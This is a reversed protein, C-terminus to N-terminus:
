ECAGVAAQPLYHVGPEPWSADTCQSQEVTMSSWDFEDIVGNALGVCPGDPDLYWETLGDVDLDASEFPTVNTLLTTPAGLLTNTKTCSYAGQINTGFITDPYVVCHQMIMDTGAPAYLASGSPAVNNTFTSGIFDGRGYVAGGVTTATNAVFESNIVTTGVEQLRLAGGNGATARNGVFRSNSITLEDNVANASGSALHIAGGFKASNDTFVVSDFNCTSEEAYIAGGGGNTAVNADFEGGQITLQVYLPNADNDDIFIAGGWQSSNGRFITDTITVPGYIPDPLSLASGYVAGTNEIFSSDEIVLTAWRAFVAGGVNREFSSNRVTVTINGASTFLAAGGNKVNDTLTLNDLLVEREGWANADVHIAGDASGSISFGDLRVATFGVEPGSDEDEIAVVYNQWGDAGLRVPHGAIDRQSLLFETGAFGGYIEVDHRINAVQATSPDPAYQGEAVWLQPSTCATSADIADQLNAFATAWSLGDGDAPADVDVYIPGECLTRSCLLDVEQETFARSWVRLEDVEGQYWRNAVSGQGLASFGPDRLGVNIGALTSDLNCDHYTRAAVGGEVVLTIESWVDNDLMSTTPAWVAANTDLNWLGSLVRSGPAPDGIYMTSFPGCGVCLTNYKAVNPVRVRTSFTFDGQTGGYLAVARPGTFTVKDDIGDLSLAEGKPSEVFSGGVLTGTRGKGSVDTIQNGVRDEFTWHMELDELLPDTEIVPCLQALEVDDLARDWIRLEDIQGGFWRGALTSKGISSSGIDILGLNASDLQADLQCDIYYRANSGNEVVLTVETWTDNALAASSTLWKWATSTQDDLASLLAPGYAETGVYMTSFPACGTCLTNYKGTNTVKVRASFTFSGDVGGYLAPSRPPSTMSIWDNVGDLVVAQGNPSPTLDGGGLLTGHRGNGSVDTFQTGINDEFTWHLLLGEDLDRFEVSELSATSEGDSCATLTLSAVLAPLLASKPSPSTDKM